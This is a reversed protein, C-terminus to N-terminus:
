LEQHNHHDAPKNELHNIVLPSTTNPKIFLKPGEQGIILISMDNHVLMLSESDFLLSTCTHIYESCGIRQNARQLYEFLPNFEYMVGADNFAQAFVVGKCLRTTNAVAPAFSVVVGLQTHHFSVPLRRTRKNDWRFYKLM